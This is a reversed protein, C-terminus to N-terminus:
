AFNLAQIQAVVTEIMEDYEEKLIRREKNDLGFNIASCVLDRVYSRSVVKPALFDLELCEEVSWRSSPVRDLCGQMLIIASHPVKVGGLGREAYVIKTHPDMIAKLRSQGQYAAYPPRGYVMQYLICGCSWVDAPKGVRWTSAPESAAPFSAQGVEILTEPAMYNPTGIQLERYINVTHDPVTNAIGFDIIKMLGKVFLFNAPKLDSHVIGAKHVAQVCRFLELAHFRVFQVDLQPLAAMRHQLVSSLDIEGCEMVLHLAGDQIAHDQLAVVRPHEKLKQLHEIERKFGDLSSEDFEDLEVKKLAYIKRSQAHRVRYVKSSGGRGLIDLKEYPQSNVVIMKK